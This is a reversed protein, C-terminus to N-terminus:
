KKSARSAIKGALALKYQRATEKLDQTYRAESEILVFTSTALANEVESHGFEIRLRREWSRITNVGVCLAGAVEQLADDRDMGRTEGQKVLVIARMQLRLITWNVKRRKKTARLLPQVEGYDCAELAWLVMLRFDQSIGPITWVLTKLWNRAVIPDIDFGARGVWNRGHWEHRHGDNTSRVKSHDPHEPPKATELTVSELDKLALGAQHDLAWGALTTILDGAIRLAQAAALDKGAASRAGHKPDTKRELVPLQNILGAVYNERESLNLEPRPYPNKNPPV